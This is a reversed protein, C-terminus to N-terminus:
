AARRYPLATILEGRGDYYNFGTQGDAAYDLAETLTSFEACCLAIRSNTPTPEHKSVLNILGGLDRDM